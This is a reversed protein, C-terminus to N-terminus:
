AIGSIRSAALQLGYRTTGRGGRSSPLYPTVDLGLAAKLERKLKASRQLFFTDALGREHLVQQELQIYESSMGGACEAYLKLFEKPEVETYRLFGADGWGRIKARALLAYWALLQPPLAVVQGAATVTSGSLDFHLKLPALQRTAASVSTSFSADGALLPEPMGERLRVFPIYALQVEADATSVPKGSADFLVRPKAPPYFFDRNTEFPQSVLVHSLRDQPRGFLSLAYGLYYGMSKRGGAISVHVAAEPDACLGRIFATIADAALVNEAPTRIDALPGAPGRMVEICQEDFHVRGELGYEKCLAHFHGTSPDLLTLRARDAGDLTTIVRIETPVFPPTSQVALAYLTETIVQPTMGSAIALIRRAFTSPSTM